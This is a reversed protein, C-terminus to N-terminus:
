KIILITQTKSIEANMDYQFVSDDQLKVEIGNTWARMGFENESLMWKVIGYDSFIEYNM